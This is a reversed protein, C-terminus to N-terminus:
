KAFTNYLSIMVAIFTPNEGDMELLQDRCTQSHVDFDWIQWFNYRLSRLLEPQGFVEIHGLELIYDGPNNEPEWIYVTYDGVETLIVDAGNHRYLSKYSFHEYWLEGQTENEIIFVGQDAAVPFPLAEDGTYPQM